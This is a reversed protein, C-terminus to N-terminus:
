DEARILLMLGKLMLKKLVKIVRKVGVLKVDDGFKTQKFPKKSKIDVVKPM